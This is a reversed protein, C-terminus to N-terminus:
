QKWVEKGINFYIFKDSYSFDNALSWFVLFKSITYLLDFLFILFSSLLCKFVKVKVQLANETAKRVSNHLGLSKLM